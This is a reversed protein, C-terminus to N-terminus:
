REFLVGAICLTILVRTSLRPSPTSMYISTSTTYPNLTTTPNEPTEPQPEEPQSEEPQPETTQAAVASWYDISVSGGAGVFAITDKGEVNKMAASFDKYEGNTNSLRINGLVEGDAGGKRVEIVAPGEAKASFAIKSLGESFNVDKVFFYDGKDISSVVKAGSAETIVEVGSDGFKAEAQITKYPNFAPAAEVTLAAFHRAGVIHVNAVDDLGCADLVASVLGAHAVHHEGISVKHAGHCRGKRWKGIGYKFELGHFSDQMTNHANVLVACKGVVRAALKLRPELFLGCGKLILVALVHAVEVAAIYVVVVWLQALVKDLHHISHAIAHM